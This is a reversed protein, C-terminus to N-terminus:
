SFSARLILRFMTSFIRGHHLFPILQSAHSCCRGILVQSRFSRGKAESSPTPLWGFGRLFLLGRFGSVCMKVGGMKVGRRPRWLFGNIYNMQCAVRTKGCTFGSRESSFSRRKEGPGGPCGQVGQHAEVAGAQTTPGNSCSRDLVVVHWEKPPSQSICM